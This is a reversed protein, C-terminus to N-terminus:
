ARELCVHSFLTTVLVLCLLELRASKHVEVNGTWCDDILITCRHEQERGKQAHMEEEVCHSTTMVEGLAQVLENVKERKVTTHAGDGLLTPVDDGLGFQLNYDIRNLHDVALM